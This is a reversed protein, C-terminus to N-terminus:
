SREKKFSALGLALIEHLLKVRGAIKGRDQPKEDENLGRAKVIEAFAVIDDPLMVPNHLLEEHCEYCFIVTKKEHEWPCEAFIGETKTGDETVSLLTYGKSDAIKDLATNIRATSLEVSEKLTLSQDVKSCQWGTVVLIAATIFIINKM